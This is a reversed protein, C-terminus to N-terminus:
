KMRRKKKKENEYIYINPIVVFCVKRLLAVGYQVQFTSSTMNGATTRNNSKTNTDHEIIRDNQILTEIHEIDTVNHILIDPDCFRFSLKTRCIINNNDHLTEIPKDNKDNENMDNKDNDILQEIMLEINNNRCIHDDIDCEQQQIDNHQIITINQSNGPIPYEEISWPIISVSHVISVLIFLMFILLVNNSQHKIRYCYIGQIM